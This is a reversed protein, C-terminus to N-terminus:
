DDGHKQPPTSSNSVGYAQRDDGVSLRRHTGKETHTPSIGPATPHRRHLSALEMVTLAIKELFPLFTTVISGLAVKSAAVAVNASCRMPATTTYSPTGIYSM